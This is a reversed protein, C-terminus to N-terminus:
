FIQINLRGRSREAQVIKHHLRKWRWKSLDRATAIDFWYNWGWIQRIQLVERGRLAGNIHNALFWALSARRKRVGWLNPLARWTRSLCFQLACSQDIDVSLSLKFVLGMNRPRRGVRGLGRLVHPQEGRAWHLLRNNVKLWISTSCLRTAWSCHM